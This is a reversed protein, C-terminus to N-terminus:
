VAHFLLNCHVFSGARPDPMGRGLVVCDVARRVGDTKVQSEGGDVVSVLFEVLFQVRSSEDDSKHERRNVLAHTSPNCLESAPWLSMCNHSAAGREGIAGNGLYPQTAAVSAAVESRYRRSCSTILLTGLGVLM